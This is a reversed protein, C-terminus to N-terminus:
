HTSPVNAGSALLSATLGSSWPQGAYMQCPRSMGMSDHVVRSFAEACVPLIRAGVTCDSRSRFWRTYFSM